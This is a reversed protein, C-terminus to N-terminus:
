QPVYDMSLLLERAYIGDTAVLLYGLATEM